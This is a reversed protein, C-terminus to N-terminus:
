DEARGDDIGEPFNAWGPLQDPAVGAALEIRGTMNYYGVLATAEWIAQEDLGAQRLTEIDSEEVMGPQLTLKRAYGLLARTKNGLQYTSWTHAFEPGLREDGTLRRLAETHIALCSGGGLLGFVVTGVMERQRRSLPSDARLSLYKTLEATLRAVPPCALMVSRVGTLVGYVRRTEEIAERVSESATEEDVTMIRPM